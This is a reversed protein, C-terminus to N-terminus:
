DVQAQNRIDLYSGAETLSRFCKYKSGSFGHINLHCENWTHYTKPWIRKGVVYFIKMLVVISSLCLVLSVLVMLAFDDVRKVEFCFPNCAM